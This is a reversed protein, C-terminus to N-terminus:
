PELLSSFQELIKSFPVVYTMETWVDNSDSDYIKNLFDPSRVSAIKPFKGTSLIGVVEGTNRNVVASGSDGHSVDCGTAFVWTKHPGPNLIDPDNMYRIEGDKSYTKCDHGQDIMLEGDDNGAFGYGITLLPQGKVPGLKSLPLASALLKEQAKPELGKLTFITLDLTTDTLIVEDCRLRHVGLSEFSVKTEDCFNQDEIVHHNTAILVRGAKEGIIFGTATTFMVTLRATANATRTVVSHTGEQQSPDVIIKDWKPGIQYDFLSEDESNNLSFAPTRLSQQQTSNGCSTLAPPLPLLLIRLVLSYVHWGSKRQM